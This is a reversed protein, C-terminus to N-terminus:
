GCKRRVWAWPITCVSQAPHQELAHEGKPSTCSMHQATTCLAKSPNSLRMQAQRLVCLHGHQTCHVVYADYLRNKKMHMNMQLAYERRVMHM